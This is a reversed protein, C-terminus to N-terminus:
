DTLLEVDFALPTNPPILNPVGRAGYAKSSPILLTAKAGPRVTVLWDNWGPIMQGVKFDLPKNRKYSSDFEKGDFTYGKYHAQVRGGNVIFDGEGAEFNCQYVGNSMRTCALNNDTAYEIITNEDIDNQSSPNAVYNTYLGGLKSKDEAKAVEISKDSATNSSSSNCSNFLVVAALLLIIRM